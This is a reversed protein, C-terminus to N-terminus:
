IGDQIKPGPGKRVRREGGRYVWGVIDIGMAGPLTLKEGGDTRISNVSRRTLSFNEPNVSGM